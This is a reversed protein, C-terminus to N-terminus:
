RWSTTPRGATSMTLRVDGAPLREPAKIRFDRVVIQATAPDPGDGARDAGCGSLSLVAFAVVALATLRRTM